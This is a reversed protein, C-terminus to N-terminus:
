DSQKNVESKSVYYIGAFILAGILNAFPIIQLLGLVILQSTKRKVVALHIWCSHIVWLICLLFLMENSIGLESQMIEPFFLWVIGGLTIVFTCVWIFVLFLKRLIGLSSFALSVSTVQQKYDM